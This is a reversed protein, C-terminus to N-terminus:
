GSDPPYSIYEGYIIYRLFRRWPMKLVKVCVIVDLFYVKGESGKPLSM